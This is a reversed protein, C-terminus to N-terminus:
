VVIGIYFRMVLVQNYIKCLKMNVFIVKSQKKLRFAMAITIYPEYFYGNNKQLGQRIEDNLFRVHIYGMLRIM